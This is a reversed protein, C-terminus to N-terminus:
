FIIIGFAGTKFRAIKLRTNPIKLIGGKGKLMKVPMGAIKNPFLAILLILVFEWRPFPKATDPIIM